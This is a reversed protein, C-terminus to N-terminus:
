SSPHESGDRHRFFYCEDGSGLAAESCVDGLRQKVSAKSHDSEGGFDLLGIEVVRVEARERSKSSPRSAAWFAAAVTTERKPLISTRAWRTPPKEPPWATASVSSAVKWRMNSM